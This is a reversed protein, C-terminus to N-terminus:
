KTSRATGVARFVLLAIAVVAALAVVIKLWTPNWSAYSEQTQLRGIFIGYRESPAQQEAIALQQRAEAIREKRLLLNILNYHAEALTPDLGIAGRLWREAEKLQGDQFYCGGLDSAIGAEDAASV